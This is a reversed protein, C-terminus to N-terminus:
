HLDPWDEWLPSTIISYLLSIKIHELLTSLDAHNVKSDSYILFMGMSIVQKLTWRASRIAAAMTTTLPWPRWGPTTRTVPTTWTGVTYRITVLSCRLILFM